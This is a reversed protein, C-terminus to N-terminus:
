AQAWIIFGPVRCPRLDCSGIHFRANQLPEQAPSVFSLEHCSCPVPEVFRVFVCSVTNLRCSQLPEKPPPVFSLRPWIMVRCARYPRFDYSVTNFNGNLFLNKHQPCLVLGSVRDHGWTCSISSIRPEQAPPVFSLEHGSFPGPYMFRVFDCSVTNFRCTQIFEQACLVLSM